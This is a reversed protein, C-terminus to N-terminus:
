PTKESETFTSDMMSLTAFEVNNSSSILYIRAGPYHWQYLQQAIRTGNLANFTKSLNEGAGIAKVLSQTVEDFHQPDFRGIIKFVRDDHFYVSTSFEVDEIYASNIIGIARNEEPYVTYHFARASIAEDYSMGLQYDFIKLQYVALPAEEAFGTTVTLLLLLSFTLVRISM